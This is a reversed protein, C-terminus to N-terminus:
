RKELNSHALFVGRSTFLEEFTVLAMFARSLNIFWLVAALSYSLFFHEQSMPSYVM